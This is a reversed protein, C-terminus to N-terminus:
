FDVLFMGFLHKGTKNMEKIMVGWKQPRSWEIVGQSEGLDLNQNSRTRVSHAALRLPVLVRREM